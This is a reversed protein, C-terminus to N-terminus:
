EGQLNSDRLWKTRFSAYVGSSLPALPISAVRVFNEQLDVKLVGEVSDVPYSEELLAAYM